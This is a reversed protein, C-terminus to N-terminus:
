KYTMQILRMCPAVVKGERQASYQNMFYITSKEKIIFLYFPYTHLHQVFWVMTFMKLHFVSFDIPQAEWLAPVYYM